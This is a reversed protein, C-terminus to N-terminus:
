DMLDAAIQEARARYTHPRALGRGATMMKQREEEHALYYDVLAKLEDLSDYQPAAGPFVRDLGKNRDSIVFGGSAWVDFVKNSVFGERAMDPHHDTLTIRAAAYLYEM